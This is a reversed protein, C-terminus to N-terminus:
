TQEEAYCWSQPPRKIELAYNGCFPVPHENHMACSECYLSEPCPRHFNALPRPKDYIKLKTIHWCFFECKKDFASFGPAIGLYDFLEERSVCSGRTAYERDEKVILDSGGHWEIEDCEFEGIVSSSKPMFFYTRDKLSIMSDPDGPHLKTCYIYCKFPTKLKPRTKRIEVTKQGSAILDCWKPRIALIVGTM